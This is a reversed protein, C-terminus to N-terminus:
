GYIRCSRISADLISDEVGGIMGDVVIAGEDALLAFLASVERMSSTAVVDLDSAVVFIFLNASRESSNRSSIALWWPSGSSSLRTRVSLANWRSLM